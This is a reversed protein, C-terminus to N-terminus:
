GSLLSVCSHLHEVDEPFGVFSNNLMEEFIPVATSVWINGSNEEPGARGASGCLSGLIRLFYDM